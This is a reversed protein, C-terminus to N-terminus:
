EALMMLLIITFSLSCNKSNVINKRTSLLHYCDLCFQLWMCSCRISVFLAFFVLFLLVFRALLLLLVAIAVCEDSNQVNIWRLTVAHTTCVNQLSFFSLFFLFSIDICIVECILVIIM